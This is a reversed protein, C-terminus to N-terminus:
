SKKMFHIQERQSKTAQQNESLYVELKRMAERGDNLDVRNYRKFMAMSKHGSIAMIVSINAGAKRMNTIATHRFDHFCLEKIGARRCAGQFRRRFNGLLNGGETTFLFREPDRKTENTLYDKLFRGIMSGFPAKRGGESKTEGDYLEFAGEGAENDYFHIQRERLSLIERERM